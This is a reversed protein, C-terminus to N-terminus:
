DTTWRRQPLVRYGCRSVLEVDGRDRAATATQPSGATVCADSAHPGPADAARPGSGAAVSAVPPPVRRRRVRPRGASRSLQSRSATGPHVSTRRPASVAEVERSEPWRPGAKPMAEVKLKGSGSSRCSRRPEDTGREGGGRHSATVTAASSNSTAATAHPTRRRRRDPRSARTRPTLARRTPPAPFADRRSRCRFEGAAIARSDPPAPFNFVQPQGRTCTSRMSM